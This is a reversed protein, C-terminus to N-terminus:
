EAGVEAPTSLESQVRISGHHTAPAVVGCAGGIWGASADYTM